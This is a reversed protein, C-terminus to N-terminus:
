PGAARLQEMHEDLATKLWGDPLGSLFATQLQRRREETMAVNAPLFFRPDYTFMIYAQMENYMLEENATDYRMSGLFHRVAAREEETLATFWFRRVYAAYVPDTFFEGHSLEHHLMTARMTETITASVRPVSILAGIASPASWGLQAVLARLQNEQADLTIRQRDATAFFAALSAASYDHGSYYTEVTDGQARIATALEADTLVRDRPLGAKEILSAVRNLMEGQMRLSPFDLVVIAPNAAFRFVTLQATEQTLITAEDAVGIPFRSPSPASFVPPAAPVRPPFPRKRPWLLWGAIGSGAVLALGGAALVDLLFRRTPTALGAVITSDDDVEQSPTRDHRTM